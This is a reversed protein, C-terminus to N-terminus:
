SSYYTVMLKRSSADLEPCTLKWLGCPLDALQFPRAEAQTDDISLALRHEVPVDDVLGVGEDVTGKRRSGSQTSPPMRASISSMHELGAERAARTPRPPTPYTALGDPESSRTSSRRCPFRLKGILITIPDSLLKGLRPDERDM